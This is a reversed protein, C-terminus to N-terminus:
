TPWRPESTTTSAIKWFTWWPRVSEPEPPLHMMQSARLRRRQEVELAHAIGNAERDGRLAQARWNKALRELEDDDMHGLHPLPRSRLSTM